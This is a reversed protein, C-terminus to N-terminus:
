STGECYAREDDWEGNELCTIESSGSKQYYKDHCTFTCKTGSKFLDNSDSEAVNTCRAYKFRHRDNANVWKAKCVIELFLDFNKCIKLINQM